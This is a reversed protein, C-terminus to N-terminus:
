RERIATKSIRCTYHDLLFVFAIESGVKEDCRDQLDHGDVGYGTVHLGVKLGRGFKM